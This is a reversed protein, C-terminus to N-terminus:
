EYNPDHDSDQSDVTSSDSGTESSWSSSYEDSSSVTSETGETSESESSYDSSYDDSSSVTSEISEMSDSESSHDTENGHCGRYLMVSFHEINPWYIKQLAMINDQKGCQVFHISKLNKLETLEDLRVLNRDADLRLDTLNTLTRLVDTTVSEDYIDM